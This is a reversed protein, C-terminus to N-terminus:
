GCTHLCLIHASLGGGHGCTGYFHVWLGTPLHVCRHISARVQPYIRELQYEDEELLAVERTVRTMNSRWKRDKDQRRLLAIMNQLCFVCGACCRSSDM